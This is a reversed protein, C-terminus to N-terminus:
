EGERGNELGGSVVVQAARLLKSDLMYGKRVQEVVHDEPVQDSDIRSIAEHLNHDFKQGKADIPQLGFRALVSILQGAVLKIGHVFSEDAGHEDAARLALDLNDLVPLLEEMLDENARKLLESRERSARKRFNDFDARLRLFQDELPEKVDEAAAALKTDCPEPKRSKVFPVKRTKASKQRDGSSADAKKKKKDNM